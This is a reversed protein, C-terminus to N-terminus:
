CSSDHGVFKNYSLLTHGITCLQISYEDITDRVHDLVYITNGQIPKSRSYYEGKIGIFKESFPSSIKYVHISKDYNFAIVTSAVVIVIVECVYLTPTCISYDLINLKVSLKIHSEIDRYYKKAYTAIKKWSRSNGEM